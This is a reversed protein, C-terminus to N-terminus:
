RNASTEEPAQECIDVKADALKREKIKLCYRRWLTGDLATQGRFRCRRKNNATNLVAAREDGLGAAQSIVDCKGTSGVEGAYSDCWSFLHTM